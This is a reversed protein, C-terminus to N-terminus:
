TSIPPSGSGCQPGAFFAIVPIDYFTEPAGARMGIKEAVRVSRRNEEEIMAVIRTLGLSAFGHDLWARGAETAYGLGWQDRRMRYSIETRGDALVELGCTGIIESSGRRRVAFTAFGHMAQHRIAHDIWNVTDAVTQHPGRTSFRMVERDGLIRFLAAGDSATFPRMVLRPTTLM